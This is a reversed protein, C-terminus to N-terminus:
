ITFRGPWITLANNLLPFIRYHRPTEPQPYAPKVEPTKGDQKPVSLKATPLAPAVRGQVAPTSDDASSPLAPHVVSPIADKNNQAAIAPLISFFSFGTLFLFITNTKL